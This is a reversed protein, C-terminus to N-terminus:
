HFAYKPKDTLFERFPNDLSREIDKGLEHFVTRALWDALDERGLQRLRHGLVEHTEGKGEGPSNNWHLLM